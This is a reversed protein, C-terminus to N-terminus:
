RSRGVDSRQELVLRLLLRTAGFACASLRHEGLAAVVRPDAREAPDPASDTVTGLRTRQRRWQARDRRRHGRSRARDTPHESRRGVRWDTGALAGRRDSRHRRRACAGLRDRRSRRYRRPAARHAELGDRLALSRELNPTAFAPDRRRWDDAAMDRMRERGFGATLLGSGLPSYCIVGTGHERCWPLVDVAADRELLSLPPQLSDVHRIAECRELLEVSFNSVGCWRVKGEDALRVMEAWSEEVPTGTEDPAHFQYLDIHDVGLRRLSAECERRVSEPRLIQRSDVMPRAPDWVLGCKTFVFPRQDGPLSRIARGVVEESHGLGYEAATDIWNVGLELVHRITALSSRDDQPGWGSSWGGGGLAWAGLGVITLDPGDRGLRRTPLAM